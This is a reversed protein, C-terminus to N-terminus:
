EIVYRKCGQFSVSYTAAGNVDGSYSLSMINAYGTITYAPSTNVSFRILIQTRNYQLNLFDDYDFGDIAILGDCDVTWSTLDPKYEVAWASSISSVQMLEMSSQFSCNTSSSFAVNSSGNFYYLIVDTGLIAM